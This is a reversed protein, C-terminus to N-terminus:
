QKAWSASTTNVRTYTGAARNSGNYANAFNGPIADAMAVNAGITVSTIQNGYFVGDAISTVSDPIAISTLSNNRFAGAGISTVSNSIAISTLQNNAFANDGISTVRNPIVISTLQNNRFAGTGITTVSEPITINRLRNNAFAENGISTVSNPIAISTIQKSFYENDRIATTGDAIAIDRQQNTPLWWNDASLGSEQGDARNDPDGGRYTIGSDPQRPLEAVATGGMANDNRRRQEIREPKDPLVNDNVQEQVLIDQTRDIEIETNENEEAIVQENVRGANRVKFLYLCSFLAIIVIVAVAGIGVILSGKRLRNRGQPWSKIFKKEQTRATVSVPVIADKIDNLRPLNELPYIIRLEKDSKQIEEYRKLLENNTTLAGKIFKKESKTIKERHYRELTLQSIYNGRRM